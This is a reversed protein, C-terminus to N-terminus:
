EMAKGSDKADIAILFNMSFRECDAFPAAIPPMLKEVKRPNAPHKMVPHQPEGINPTYTLKSPAPKKGKALGNTATRVVRDIAADNQHSM